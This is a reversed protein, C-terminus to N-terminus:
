GAGVSRHKDSTVEINIELSQLIAPIVGAHVNEKAKDVISKLNHIRNVRIAAVQVSVKAGRRLRPRGDISDKPPARQAAEVRDMRYNDAAKMQMMTIM